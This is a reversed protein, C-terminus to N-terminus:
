GSNGSFDPLVPSLAARESVEPDGRSGSLPIKESPMPGTLMEDRAPGPRTKKTELSALDKGGHSLLALYTLVHM